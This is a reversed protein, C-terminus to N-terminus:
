GSEDEGEEEDEDEGQATTSSRLSRRGETHQQEVDEESSRLLNAAKSGAELWLIGDTFRIKHSTRTRLSVSVFM